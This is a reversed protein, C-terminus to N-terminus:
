LEGLRKLWANDDENRREEITQLQSAWTKKSVGGAQEPDYSNIDVGGIIDEEFLSGMDENKDELLHRMNNGAGLYHQAHLNRYNRALNTSYDSEKRIQHTAPSHHSDISVAKQDMHMWDKLSKQERFSTLLENESMKKKPDYKIDSQTLIRAEEKQQKNYIAWEQDHLEQLLGHLSDTSEEGNNDKESTKINKQSGLKKLAELHRTSGLGKKELLPNKKVAARLSLLALHRRYPDHHYRDDQNGHLESIPGQKGDRIFM